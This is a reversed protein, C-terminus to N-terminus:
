FLVMDGEGRFANYEKEWLYEKDAHDIDLIPDEKESLLFDISSIEVRITMRPFANADPLACRYKISEFFSNLQKVFNLARRVFKHSFVEGM